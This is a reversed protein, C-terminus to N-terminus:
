ELHSTPILLEVGSLAQRSPTTRRKQNRLDATAREDSYVDDFMVSFELLSGEHVTQLGLSSVDDALVSLRRAECLGGKGRDFDEVLDHIVTGFCLNLSYTLPVSEDIILRAEVCDYRYVDNPYGPQGCCYTRPCKTRRARHGSHM